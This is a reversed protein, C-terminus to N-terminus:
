QCKVTTATATATSVICAVVGADDVNDNKCCAITAADAFEVTVIVDIQSSDHQTDFRSILIADHDSITM